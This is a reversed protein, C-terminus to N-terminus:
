TKIRSRPLRQESSYDYESVIHKWSRRAKLDAVTHYHLETITAIDNISMNGEQLFKCALHIQGEKYISTGVGEGKPNLGLEVAHEM